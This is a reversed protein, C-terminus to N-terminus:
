TFLAILLRANRQFLRLAQASRLLSIPALCPNKVFFGRIEFYLAVRLM